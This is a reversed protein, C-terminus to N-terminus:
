EPCIMNDIVGLFIEGPSVHTVVDNEVVNGSMGQGIAPANQSGIPFVDHYSASSRVIAFPDTRESADNMGQHQFREYGLFDAHHHRVNGFVVQCDQAIEHLGPLHLRNDIPGIGQILHWFSDAIQFFSVGAAFYYNRHVLHAATGEDPQRATGVLAIHLLVVAVALLSMAIPLFASLHKLTNSLNAQNNM